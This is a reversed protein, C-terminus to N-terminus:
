AGAVIAVEPGVGQYGVGGIRKLLLAEVVAREELAVVVQDQRAPVGDVRGLCETRKPSPIRDHGWQETM